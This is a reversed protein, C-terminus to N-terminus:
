GHKGCFFAVLAFADYAVMGVAFLDLFFEDVPAVDVVEGFLVVNSVAAGDVAVCSGEAEDFAAAFVAAVHEVADEFVAWAFDGGVSDDLCDSGVTAEGVVIAPDVRGGSDFVRNGGFAGLCGGGFV